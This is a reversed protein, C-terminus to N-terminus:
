SGYVYARVMERRAKGNCSNCYAQSQTVFGPGLQQTVMRIGKGDCRNCIKLAGKTKSGEGSCEKCIVKKNVKLKRTKGTFLNELEM